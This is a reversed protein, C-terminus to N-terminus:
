KTPIIYAGELQKGGSALIPETNLNVVDKTFTQCYTTNDTDKSYVAVLYNGKVKISGPCDQFTECANNSCLVDSNEGICQHHITDCTEGQNVNCDFDNNCGLDEGGCNGNPTCKNKYADPVNVNKYDFCMFDARPGFIPDIMETTVKYYGANAGADWGYPESYFDVGNGSTAPTKNFVCINAASAEIIQNGASDVSYCGNGTIPYNCEGGNKLGGVKHFIIGYDAGPTNVFRVGKVKQSFTEGLNDQNNTNANSMYGSCMEGSCGGLCYYVGPTEFAMRLSGQPLPETQGCTIKKVQTANLDKSNGSELNPLPFEWILLAPAKTADSCDYIISNFNNKILDEGRHAIDSVQIGIPKKETGNTYFVGQVGPLPTLSPTILTPNITRIIIFSALTLVLGLVAGKIRDMSDGRKSPDGTASAGIIGIAGITFSILSLIGAIYIGLGFFYGVFESIGPNNTNIDPLGPIPPYTIELTAQAFDASLFLFLILFASFILYKNKM